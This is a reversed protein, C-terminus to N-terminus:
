CCPKGSGTSSREEVKRHHRTEDRIPVLQLPTIGREAPDGATAIRDHVAGTTSGLSTVSDRDGERPNQAATRKLLNGRVTPTAQIASASDGSWEAKFNTCKGGDVAAM